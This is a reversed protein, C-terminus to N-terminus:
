VCHYGWKLYNPDGIWNYSLTYLKAPNLPDILTITKAVMDVSKVVYVHDMRWNSDPRDADDGTDRTSLLVQGKVGSANPNENVWGNIISARAKAVNPYQVAWRGPDLRLANRGTIATYTPGSDGGALADFLGGGFQAQRMQAIAREMIVAWVEVSGYEDVDAPGINVMDSGRDLSLKITQAAAGALNVRFM